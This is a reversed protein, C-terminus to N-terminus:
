GTRRARRRNEYSVFAKALKRGLASDREVQTRVWVGGCIHCRGDTKAFVRARAVSPLALRRMGSAKSTAKRSARDGRWAQLMARLEGASAPEAHRPSSSRTTM